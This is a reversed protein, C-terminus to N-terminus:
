LCRELWSKLFDVTAQKPNAALEDREDKAGVCSPCGERCGCFSILDFAAQLLEPLRDALHDALGIGGPVNDYVYFGSLGHHPDQIRGTM